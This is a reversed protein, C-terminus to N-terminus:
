SANYMRKKTVLVVGTTIFLICGVAIFIKTGMGGTTLFRGKKVIHYKCSWIQNQGVDAVYIADDQMKESLKTIFKAPDVYDPNTNRVIKLEEKYGQLTKVWQSYDGDIEYDLSITNDNGISRPLPSEPRAFVLLEEINCQEPIESRFLYGVELPLKGKSLEIEFRMWLRYDTNISFAKGGVEVTNPLAKTTLNIM